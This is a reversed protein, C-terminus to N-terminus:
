DCNSHILSNKNIKFQMKQLSVNQLIDYKNVRLMESFSGDEPDKRLSIYTNLKTDFFIESNSGIGSSEIFDSSFYVNEPINTVNTIEEFLKIEKITSEKLPHRKTIENKGFILKDKDIIVRIPNSYFTEIYECIVFENFDDTNKYTYIDFDRNVENEGTVNFALSLENYKNEIEVLYTKCNADENFVPTLIPQSKNIEGLNILTNFSFDGNFYIKTSDSIDPNNRGYVYFPYQSKDPNLHLYKGKVIKWGGVIGGGFWSMAYRNHKNIFLHAEGEPSRRGFSLSYEGIIKNQIEKFEGGSAYLSDMYDQTYSKENLENLKTQFTTCSAYLEETIRNDFEYIETMETIQISDSKSLHSCSDIKIEFDLFSDLYSITDICNCIKIVNEKVLQDITQAYINSTLILMILMGFARKIM